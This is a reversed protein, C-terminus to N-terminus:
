ARVECAAYCLCRRDYHGIDQLRALGNSDEGYDRLEFLFPIQSPAGRFDCITKEWDIQGEFPLLHEDKMKNNDHVHTSAIHDKLKQFASQVGEAMHAHGTDFCIKLDLNTYRIFHLLREPTSLLGSLDWPVVSGERLWDHEGREVGGVEFYNVKM